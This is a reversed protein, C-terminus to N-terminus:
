EPLYVQACRRFTNDHIELVARIGNDKDTQYGGALDWAVPVSYNRACQFVRLDREALQETTLFGGYPDHVHPDAGAQYLIIDCNKLESMWVPIQDLFEDAQSKYIYIEGATIHNIWSDANFRDIINETGDGFHMDFDLIGVRAALGLERLAFATVMLGNFTCFGHGRDFCAHHFGSVPAIAVMGNNIAARAACLMAGCTYPLTRAVSLSKNWFGNDVTGGLVGDVYEPLHVAYLQEHTVPLVDLVRLPIGLLRWSDVVQAPKSASPSCRQSPAVMLPSYYVPLESLPSMM